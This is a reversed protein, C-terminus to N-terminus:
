AQPLHTPDMHYWRQQLIIYTRSRQWSRCDCVMIISIVMMGHAVLKQLGPDKGSLYAPRAVWLQM